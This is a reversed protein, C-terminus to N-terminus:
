CGRAADRNTSSPSFRSRELGLTELIWPCPLLWLEPGTLLWRVSSPPRRRPCCVLDLLVRVGIRPRM